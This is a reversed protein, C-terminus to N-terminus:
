QRSEALEKLLAKFEKGTMPKSHIKEGQQLAQLLITATMPLQEV